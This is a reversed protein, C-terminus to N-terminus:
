SPPLSYEGGAHFRLPSPIVPVIHAHMGIPAPPALPSNDEVGLARFLGPEIEPTKGLGSCDGAGAHADGLGALDVAGAV